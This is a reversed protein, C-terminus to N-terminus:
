PGPTSEAELLFSYLCCKRPNFAAPAYLQYGQWWGTGNDHFRPFVNRSGEPCSWAHVPVSKDKVKVKRIITGEEPKPYAITLFEKWSTIFKRFVNFVDIKKVLYSVRSKEVFVTNRLCLSDHQKNTARTWINYYRIYVSIRRKVVPIRESFHTTLRNRRQAFKM